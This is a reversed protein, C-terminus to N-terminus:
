CSLGPVRMVPGPEVQLEKSLHEQRRGIFRLVRTACSRCFWLYIDTDAIESETYYSFLVYQLVLCVFQSGFCVLRAFAVAERLLCMCRVLAVTGAHVLTVAVAHVLSCVVRM